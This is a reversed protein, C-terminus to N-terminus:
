IHRMYISSSGYDFYNYDNCEECLGEILQKNGYLYEVQVSHWLVRDTYSPAQYRTESKIGYEEKRDKVQEICFTLEERM